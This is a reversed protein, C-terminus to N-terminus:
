WLCLENSFPEFHCTVIDVFVQTRHPLTKTWLEPTPYLAYAYGRSLAVRTGFKKGVLDKVKLAGFPTQKVHEISEGSKKSQTRATVRLPYMQNFDIYLIVTDGEEIMSKYTAFSM